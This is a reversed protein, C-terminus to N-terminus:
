DLELRVLRSRASNRLFDYRKEFLVDLSISSNRSFRKFLESANYKGPIENMPTFKKSEFNYRFGAVTVPHGSPDNIQSIVCTVAKCDCSPNLCYLDEMVFAETQTFYENPFALSFAEAYPFLHKLNLNHSRDKWFDNSLANKEQLFPAFFEEIPLHLKEALYTQFVAQLSTEQAPSLTVFDATVADFGLVHKDNVSVPATRVDRIATVQLTHLNVHAVLAWAKAQQSKEASFTAAPEALMSLMKSRLNEKFPVLKCVLLADEMANDVEQSTNAKKLCLASSVNYYCGDWTVRPESTPPEIKLVFKHEAFPQESETTETTQTLESQFETMFNM